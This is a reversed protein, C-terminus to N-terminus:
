TSSQRWGAAPLGLFALRKYLPMQSVDVGEMDKERSMTDRSYFHAYFGVVGGSYNSGICSTPYTFDDHDQQYKDLIRARPSFYHGFPADGYVACMAKHMSQVLDRVEEEPHFALYSAAEECREKMATLETVGDQPVWLNLLKLVSSVALPAYVYEGVERFGRKLFSWKEVPFSTPLIDSKSPDTITLGLEKGARVFFPLNFDAHRSSVMGDDGYKDDANELIYTDRGTEHDPKLKHEKQWRHWLMQLILAQAISNCISTFFLGSGLTGRLQYITNCSNYVPYICARLAQTAVLEWPYGMFTHGKPFIM